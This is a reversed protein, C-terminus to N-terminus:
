YCYFQLAAADYIVCRPTEIILRGGRGGGFTRIFHFCWTSHKKKYLTLSCWWTWLNLGPNSRKALYKLASQVTKSPLWCDVGSSWWSRRCQSETKNPIYRYWLRVTHYCKQLLDMANIVIAFFCFLYLGPSLVASMKLLVSSRQINWFLAALSHKSEDPLTQKNNQTEGGGKRSIPFGLCTLIKFSVQAGATECVDSPERDDKPANAVKVSTSSPGRSHTFHLPRHPCM